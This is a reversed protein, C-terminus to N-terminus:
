AVRHQWQVRCNQVGVLYWLNALNKPTKLWPFAGAASPGTHSLAGNFALHNCHYIPESLTPVTCQM